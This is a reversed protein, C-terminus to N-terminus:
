LLPKKLPDKLAFYLPVDSVTINFLNQMLKGPVEPLESLSTVTKPAEEDFQTVGSCQMDRNSGVARHILFQSCPAKLLTCRSVSSM